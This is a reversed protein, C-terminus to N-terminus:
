KLRVTFKGVQLQRNQEQNQSAQKRQNAFGKTMMDIQNQLMDRKARIGPTYKGSEDVTGELQHQFQVQQPTMGKQWPWRYKGVDEQQKAITEEQKNLAEIQDKIAATQAQFRGTGVLAQQETTLPLQGESFGQAVNPGLEGYGKGAAMAQAMAPTEIGGLRALRDFFGPQGQPRSGTANQLANVLASVSQQYVQPNQANFTSPQQPQQQSQEGSNNGNPVEGNVTGLQKDLAAQFINGYTEAATKQLKDAIIQHTEPHQMVNQAIISAQDQPQQTPTAQPNGWQSPPISGQQNGSIMQRLMELGNGFDQLNGMPNDESTMPQQTQTDTDNAM